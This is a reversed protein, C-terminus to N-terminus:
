LNSFMINKNPSLYNEELALCNEFPNERLFNGLKKFHVDEIINIPIDFINYLPRNRSKCCVCFIVDGNQKINITEGMRNPCPIHIIEIKPNYSSRPFTPEYSVVHKVDFNRILFDTIRELINAYNELLLEKKFEGFGTPIFNLLRIRDVNLANKIYDIIREIIRENLKSIVINGVTTIGAEKAFLLAKSAQEFAGKKGKTKDNMIPDINEITIHIQKLGNEYLKRALNRDLLYGSSCIHVILGLNNAEKVIDLINPHILPEGGSITLQRVKMSSIIKIIKLIDRLNGNQKYPTSKSYCYQCNFNCKQTIEILARTLRKGSKFDRIKKIYDGKKWSFTVYCM